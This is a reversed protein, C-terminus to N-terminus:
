ASASLRRGAIRVIDIIKFRILQVAQKGVLQDRHFVPMTTATSIRAQGALSVQHELSDSVNSLAKSTVGRVRLGVGVYTQSPIRAPCFRVFM